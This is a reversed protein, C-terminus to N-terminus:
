DKKDSKDYVLRKVRYTGANEKCWKKMADQLTPLDTFPPKWGDKETVGLMQFLARPYVWVPQGDPKTWDVEALVSLILKSLEADVAEEKRGPVRPKERRYQVVLMAATTYRDAASKSTLGEKPESLLKVLRKVEAVEKDYNPTTKKDFVDMYSTWVHFNAEFHPRLLLCVEQDKVLSLGQPRATQRGEGPLFGVRVHTLGRANLVPDDVQVVAVQYEAKVRAGPDPFAHVPKEEISVVKGVVICDALAVRQPLAPPPPVPGALAPAAALSATLALLCVRRSM